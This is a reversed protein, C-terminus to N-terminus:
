VTKKKLGIRSLLYNSVELLRNLQFNCRYRNHLSMISVFYSFAFKEVVVSASMEDIKTEASYRSLQGKVRSLRTLDRSVGIAEHDLTRVQLRSQDSEQDSCEFNERTERTM